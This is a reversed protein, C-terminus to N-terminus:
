PMIEQCVLELQVGLNMPSAYGLVDFRRQGTRDTFFLRTRTTINTRYDITIVHSASAINGARTFRELRAPTAPDISGYAYGDAAYPQVYEGNDPTAPGSPNQIDIRDRKTAIATRPGILSGIGPQPM